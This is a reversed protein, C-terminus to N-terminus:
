RKSRRQRAPRKGKLQANCQKKMLELIASVDVQGCLFQVLVRGEVVTMGQKFLRKYLCDTIRGIEEGAKFAAKNVLNGNKDYIM